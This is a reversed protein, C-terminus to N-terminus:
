GGQVAHVIEVRDGDGLVRRAHEARPVVERNVAVAVRREGLGLEAVLDAVTLSERATRAEGNVTIKM